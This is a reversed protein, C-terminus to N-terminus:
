LMSMLGNLSDKVNEKMVWVYGLFSAKCKNKYIDYVYKAHNSTNINSQLIQLVNANFFIIPFKNILDFKDHYFFSKPCLNIFTQFFDILINERLQDNKLSKLAYLIYSSIGKRLCVRIFNTTPPIKRTCLMKMLKTNFKNISLILDFCNSLEHSLNNECYFKIMLPLHKDKQLHIANYIDTISLPVNLGILCILGNLNDAKIATSYFITKDNKHRSLLLRIIDISSINFAIHIATDIMNCEHTDLFDTIKSYSAGEFLMISLMMETEFPSM